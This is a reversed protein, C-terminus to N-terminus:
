EIAILQVADVMVMNKNGFQKVVNSYQNKNSNEIEQNTFAFCVYKREHFDRKITQFKVYIGYRKLIQRYKKLWFKLLWQTADLIWGLPLIAFLLIPVILWGLIGLMVIILISWIWHFPSLFALSPIKSLESMMTNWQHNPLGKEALERPIQICLRERWSKEDWKNELAIIIRENTNPHIGILVANEGPESQLESQLQPALNQPHNEQNNNDTPDKPNPNLLKAKAAAFEENTLKGTSHLQGLKELQDALSSQNQNAINGETHLQVSDDHDNNLYQVIGEDGYAPPPDNTTM